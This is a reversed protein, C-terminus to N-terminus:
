QAQLIIALRGRGGRPRGLPNAAQVYGGRSRWDPLRPGARREDRGGQEKAGQHHGGAGRNLSCLYPALISRPVTSM